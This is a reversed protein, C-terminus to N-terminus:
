ESGALAASAGGEAQSVPARHTVFRWFDHWGKETCPPADVSAIKAVRSYTVCNQKVLGPRLLQNTLHDNQANLARLYQLADVTTGNSQKDTAKALLGVSEKIASDTNKMQAVDNELRIFRDTTPQLAVKTALEVNRRELDIAEAVLRDLRADHDSQSRLADSFKAMAATFETLTTREIPIQPFNFALPPVDTNVHPPNIAASPVDVQMRPVRIDIDEITYKASASPPTVTATVSRSPVTITFAGIIIAASAGAVTAALAMPATASLMPSTAPVSPISTTGRTESSERRDPLEFAKGFLKDVQTRVWPVLAAALAVLAALFALIILAACIKRVVSLVIDAFPALRALFQDNPEVLNLQEKAHRIETEILDERAQKVPTPSTETAILGQLRYQTAWAEVADARREYARRSASAARVKGETWDAFLLAVVSVILAATAVILLRWSPHTATEPVLVSSPGAVSNSENEAEEPM